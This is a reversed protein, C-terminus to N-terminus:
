VVSKRDEGMGVSWEKIWQVGHNWWFQSDPKARELSEDHLSGLTFDFITVKWKKDEDSLEEGREIKAKVAQREELSRRDQIFTLSTGCDGCFNRVVGESSSYYALSSGPYRKMGPTISGAATTTTTTTTATYAEVVDGVTVHK